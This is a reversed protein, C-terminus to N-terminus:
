GTIRRVYPIKMLLATAALSLLYIVTTAVPIGLWINPWTPSFDHSLWREYVGPIWIHRTYLIERFMPHILYLGLTTSAWWAVFKRREPTKPWPQHFARVFILWISIAMLIRIPSLFDYQLMELSPPGKLFTGPKHFLKVTSGTGLMLVLWSVIFGVWSWVYGRKSVVTDRLMYGLLYYGIFPVFRAFVSPENDTIANMISDGASLSLAAIVATWQMRRPTHRLWVRMMPTFFYLGAIRFIFHLHTYPKGLALLYWAARWGHVTAGGPIQFTAWGTYVVSFWMFFATWFVLPVGIRGLRKRYFDRTPEARAPDLLLAGSLMIYAPVAWRTLSDWTNCIWWERDLVKASFLRLDAVHGVVVAITGFIRIADGYNMRRPLGPAPAFVSGADVADPARSSPYDLKVSQDVSM